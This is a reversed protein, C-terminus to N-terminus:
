FLFSFLIFINPKLKGETFIRLSLLEFIECGQSTFFRRRYFWSRGITYTWTRNDNSCVSFSCLELSTGTWNLKQCKQCWKSLSFCGVVNQLIEWVGSHCGTKTLIDLWFCHCFKMELDLSFQFKSNPARRISVAPETHCNDAWTTFYFCRGKITWCVNLNVTWLACQDCSM